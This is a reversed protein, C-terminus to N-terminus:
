ERPVIEYTYITVSSDKVSFVYQESPKSIPIEYTARGEALHGTVSENKSAFDMDQEVPSEIDM